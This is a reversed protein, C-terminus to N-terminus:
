EETEPTEVSVSGNTDFVQPQMTTPDVWQNVNVSNVVVASGLSQAATTLATAVASYDSETVITANLTVTYKYAM